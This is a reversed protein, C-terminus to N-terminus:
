LSAGGEGTMQQPAVPRARWLSLAGGVGAAVGAVITLWLGIGVSTESGISIQAGSETTGTLTFGEQGSIDLVETIGIWLLAAAGALIVLGAVLRPTPGRLLARGIAAGIVVIGLALAIKGGTVSIGETSTTKGSTTTGGVGTTVFGGTSWSLFAAVGALVGGLIAIVLASRQVTDNAM